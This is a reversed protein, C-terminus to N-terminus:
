IVKYATRRSCQKCPRLVRPSVDDVYLANQSSTRCNVPLDSARVRCHEMGVCEYLHIWARICAASCAASLSKANRALPLVCRACSLSDSAQRSSAAFKCVQARRSHKAHKLAYCACPRLPMLFLARMCAARICLKFSSQLAAGRMVRPRTHHLNGQRLYSQWTLAALASLVTAPVVAHM